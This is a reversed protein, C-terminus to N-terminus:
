MGLSNLLPLTKQREQFDSKNHIGMWTENVLIQGVSGGLTNGPGLLFIQEPAFEKIGVQIAKSFDYPALVQHELTYNYLENLNTIHPQWIKGRGDILPYKPNEFLSEALLRFAKTSVENMLPTHFAAHNILQFPFHEKSPLKKMLWSLGEQDGGIVLYGGLYISPYVHGQRSQHCENILDLIFQRTELNYTWDENTFPYIIQGGIIKDKMMSGMTNILTYGNELNLAGALVLATYWGMSNGTVAVIEYKQTDINLFDAYSCAFILVSANEGKTHVHSKFTTAQDLESVTPENTQKKWQDLEKVFSVVNPNFRALYNLTEKTYTGRGPAVVLIRKKM